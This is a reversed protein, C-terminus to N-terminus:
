TIGGCFINLQLPTGCSTTLNIFQGDIDIGQPFVLYANTATATFSQIVANGNVVVVTSLSYTVDYSCTSPIFELLVTLIIEDYQATNLSTASGFYLNPDYALASLNISPLTDGQILSIGCITTPLPDTITTLFLNPALCTTYSCSYPYYYPGVACPGVAPYAGPWDVSYNDFYSIADDTYIGVRGDKFMAVTQKILGLGPVSLTIKTVTPSLAEINLDLDYNIETLVAASQEVEVTHIDQSVRVILLRSQTNPAGTAREIGAYWYSKDTLWGFLIYANQKTTETLRVTTHLQRGRSTTELTAVNQIEASSRLQCDEQIFADTNRLTFDGVKFSSAPLITNFSELFPTTLSGYSIIKGGTIAPCLTSLDFDPQIVIGSENDITRSEASQIIIIINGLCDPQVGAIEFIPQQQCTGGEPSGLCPGIYEKMRELSVIDRDLSIVAAERPVGNIIRTAKVINIDSGSSLKVLGGLLNNDNLKGLHTVSAPSYEVAADAVLLSQTHVTFKLNTLGASNVGEGFSVWGGVGSLLGNVSQPRGPVVPLKASISAVPVNTFQPGSGFPGGSPLLITGDTASFTATVLSPTVTISSLMLRVRSNTQLPWWIHCSALFNEPLKTGDDAIQTAADDLPYARNQNANVFETLSAAM